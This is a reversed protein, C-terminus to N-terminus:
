SVATFSAGHDILRSAPIDIFVTTGVGPESDISLTGGHLETMYKALPLGLGTGEHARSLTGDLQTFPSLAKPIDDAAIGVGTDRVALRLGNPTVNGEIRVTGCDDSFKVANSVLNILIQKM